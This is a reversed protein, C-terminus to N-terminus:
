KAVKNKCRKNTSRTICIFLNLHIPINGADFNIIFNGMEDIIAPKNEENVILIYGDNNKGAYKLDEKLIKNGFSDYMGIKNDKRFFLTYKISIDKKNFISALLVCIVVLIISLLIEVKKKM